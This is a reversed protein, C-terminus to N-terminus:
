SEVYPRLLHDGRFKGDMASILTYVGMLKRIVFMFETPPVAFHKSLSAALARKAIRKPLQSAKWLYRGQEDLAEPLIHAADPQLPEILDVGVDAIDQKLKEPFHPEIFKLAEAEAIFAENDRRWAAAIMLRFHTVFEEPAARVAGFDLLVLQDNEGQEDIRILYNGFNPDTQMRNWDFTEKLFLDLLGESLRNRRDQSIAAVEPSALNKGEEWSMVLVRQTCFEPYVKPVRYVDQGELAMAAFELQRREHRYDVEHHLLARMEAIWDDLSLGSDLMSGVKLLAIVANLDADITKDVGPYQVKVCLEVGDSKRRAKHVQALSAAAVAKPEIELEALKEEGLEAILAKEIYPWGLSATSDELRHLAETVDPPLMYEGYTALIQGVKVVSGKMKGLEDVLWDLDAQNQRKAAETASNGLVGQWVRHRLARTGYQASTKALQFRRSFSGTKLKKLNDDVM